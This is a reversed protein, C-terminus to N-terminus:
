WNQIPCLMKISINDDYVSTQSLILQQPLFRSLIQQSICNIMFLCPQQQLMDGINKRILELNCDKCLFNCSNWGINYMALGLLM